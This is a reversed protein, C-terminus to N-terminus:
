IRCQRPAVPAPAVAPSSMATSMKAGAMPSACAMPKTAHMEATARRSRVSM